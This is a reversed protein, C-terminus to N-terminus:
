AAIRRAGDHRDGIAQHFGTSCTGSRAGRGDHRAPRPVHGAVPLGRAVRGEAPGEQAVPLRGAARATPHTSSTTSTRRTWRSAPSRRSSPPSRSSASAPGCVRHRRVQGARARPARHRDPGPTMSRACSSTARSSRRQWARSPRWSSSRGASRGPLGDDQLRGAITARTDGDAVAFAVQTPDTSAPDTLKPGLDERVLDAVFPM